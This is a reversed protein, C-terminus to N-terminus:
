SKVFLTGVLGSIGIGAQFCDNLYIIGEDQGKLEVVFLVDVKMLNSLTAWPTGVTARAIQKCM